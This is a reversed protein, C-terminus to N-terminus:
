SSTTTANTVSLHDMQPQTQALGDLKKGALLAVDMEMTWTGMTVDLTISQQGISSNGMVADRGVSVEGRGRGDM